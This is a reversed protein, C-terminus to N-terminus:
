KKKPTKDKKAWRYYDSFNFTASVQLTRNQFNLPIVSKDALTYTKNTTNTLGHVYRINLSFLHAADLMDIRVGGAVSFDTQAYPGRKTGANLAYGYEPGAVLHVNKAVEYGLILSGTLYQYNNRLITNGTEAFNTSAKFSGGKAQFYAEPQVSFKQLNWRYFAGLNIDNRFKNFINTQNNIIATKSNSIGGKFGYQTNPRIQAFSVLSALVFLTTLTKKM